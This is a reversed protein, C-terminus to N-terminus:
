RYGVAWARPAAAAYSRAVEPRVYEDHQAWQLLLRDQCAAAGRLPDVDDFSAAYGASPGAHRWYTLFWDEWRVDPTIAVVARAGFGRGALTYMAGYDHGVVGVRDADVGAVAVLARLATGVRLLQDGVARRDALTGEPRVHWPFHGEPLLSVCGLGAMEVAEALYQSRDSREDGLWHLWLVAAPVADPDQPRVLYAPREHGPPTLDEVLVTATPDTMRGLM